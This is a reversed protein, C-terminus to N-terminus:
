REGVKEIRRTALAFFLQQVDLPIVDVHRPLMNNEQGKGCVPCEFVPIGIVSIASANIYEVIKKIFSQRIIDDSSFGELIADISEKEKVSNTEVEISDVWHAYQRMTSARGHQFILTNKETEDADADLTQEVLSVLHSVWRQGADIYENINPTKLVFNIDVDNNSKITIQKSQARGLEEKYLEIDRISKSGARRVSMHTKQRETLATNDLWQLKSLALIEEAVYNCKDPHDICSRSYQFGKPYMTCVLGWLITPIDQCSVTERLLTTLNRSTGSADEVRLTCDYIHDFAFRLLRDVTYSTLNSFALSYTARGFRIKDSILLRNLEIVASESPAKFTIWIGSHYLPTTFLTGLGLTSLIRISAREGTLESNEVSPLKPAAGNIKKENHNLFQRYDSGELALTDVFVSSQTVIKLGEGIGDAWKRSEYSDTLSVNSASDVNSRVVTLYNAPLSVLTHNNGPPLPLSYSFNLTTNTKKIKEAVVVEQQLVPDNTEITDNNEKKVESGNLMTREFETLQNM